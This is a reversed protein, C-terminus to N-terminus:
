MILFFLLLIIIRIKPFGYLILLLLTLFELCLLSQVTKGFKELGKQLIGLIFMTIEWVIICMIFLLLRWFDFCLLPHVKKRRELPSENDVQQSEM